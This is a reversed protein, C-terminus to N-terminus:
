NKAGGRKTTSKKTEKADVPADDERQAVNRERELRDAEQAALNASTM